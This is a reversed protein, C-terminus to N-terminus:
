DTLGYQASVVIVFRENACRHLRRVIFRSAQRYSQSDNLISGGLKIVVIRQLAPGHM